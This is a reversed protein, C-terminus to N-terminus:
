SYKGVRTIDIVVREVDCRAATMEVRKPNDIDKYM